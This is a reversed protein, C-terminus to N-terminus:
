LAVVWKTTIGIPEAVAVVALGVMLNALLTVVAQAEVAEAELLQSCVQLAPLLVQLLLPLMLHEALEQVQSDGALLL